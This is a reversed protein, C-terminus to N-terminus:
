LGCVQCESRALLDQHWGESLDSCVILERACIFRSLKSQLPKGYNRPKTLVYHIRPDPLTETCSYNTVSKGDVSAAIIVKENSFYIVGDKLTNNGWGVRPLDVVKFLKQVNDPLVQPERRHNKSDLLVSKEGLFAVSEHRDESRALVRNYYASEVGTLEKLSLEV